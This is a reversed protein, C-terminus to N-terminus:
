GTCRSLGRCQAAILHCLDRAPATKAINNAQAGRLATIRDKVGRVPSRAPQHQIAGAMAWRLLSGQKTIHGRTVLTIKAILESILTRLSAVGLPAARQPNAGARFVPLVLLCDVAQCAM